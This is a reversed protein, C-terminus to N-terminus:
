GVEADQQVINILDIGSGCFGLVNAGSSRAKILASSFDTTEPFPYTEAGTVTGGAEQVFRSADRHLAQGFAYNPYVFHWKYRRAAQIVRSHNRSARCATIRKPDAKGSTGIHACPSRIRSSKVGSASRRRARRSCSRGAAARINAMAFARSPILRASAARSAPM